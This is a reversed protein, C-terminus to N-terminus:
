LNERATFCGIGAQIVQGIGKDDPDLYQFYVSVDGGCVAGIDAEETPHLIYAKMQSRKERILTKAEEEALHESIGGVITGYLCGEAGVAMRSGAGRLTSGTSGVITVLVVPQKRLLTDQIITLLRKM